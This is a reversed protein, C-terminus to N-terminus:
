AVTSWSARFTILEIASCSSCPSSVTQTSWGDSTGFLQICRVYDGLSHLKYTSLNFSRKQRGSNRPTKGKRELRDVRARRERETERTTLTACVQSVFARLAFGLNRTAQQLSALTDDDHLRMKALAHWTALMYLLDQIYNDLKGFLGEFAPM